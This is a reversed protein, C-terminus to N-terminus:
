EGIIRSYSGPGGVMLVSPANRLGASEERQAIVSFGLRREYYRAHRPHFTCLLIPEGYEVLERATEVMLAHAVSHQSHFESATVIRWSCALPIGIKRILETENPYDVDTHLGNPGDLTYTVTGVIDGDVIAVLQVTEPARELHSYHSWLGSPQPTIYGKRLYETHTLQWIEALESEVARRVTVAHHM